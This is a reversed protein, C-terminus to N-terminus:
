NLLSILFEHLSIVTGYKETEKFLKFVVIKAEQSHFFNAWGRPYTSDGTKPRWSCLLLLLVIRHNTISRKLLVTFYSLTVHNDIAFLQSNESAM